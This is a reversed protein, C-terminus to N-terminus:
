AERRFGSETDLGDMARMAACYKDSRDVFLATIVAGQNMNEVVTSRIKTERFAAWLFGGHDVSQLFGFEIDSKGCTPIAKKIHTVRWDHDEGVIVVDNRFFRLKRFQDVLEDGIRM